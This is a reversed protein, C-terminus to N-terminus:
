PVAEWALSAYRVFGVGSERAGLLGERSLAWTEGYAVPIVPAQDRVITQADAYHQEQEEPDETAAAAELAADFSADSWRGENSSSGSELLLGLFDQPAPYDAIWSLGWFEPPDLDLLTVYEDFPHWEITVEIGLSERLELAVARDYAMGATTLTIAPFDVGDPYGAEALAARAAEPDHAPSFDGDGRGPIGAPILSTAPESPASALRAIRDWDVAQSFARRVLPDDFPPRTTDFGYYDVSFSDAQRLQPGLRPDYRIWSADFSGVNTWDVEGSEFLAVPSQGETDTVIEISDLAPTGAWYEPNGEISIRTASQKVPLYAGSVVMEAPLDPGERGTASAAPLVALSPSATVAVFYSAPRRFDVVVTDGEARLGVGDRGIEGHLYPLAGDVDGLLSSLPGRRTPDILRLWSEVVDDATIASGDSFRIDPRLTFIIRRGGDEITWDSALAPQVRSESDFATLGEYVQALTAATAADGALAPDWTRPAAGVLVASSADSPRRSGGDTSGPATGPLGTLALLGGVAIVVAVAVAM